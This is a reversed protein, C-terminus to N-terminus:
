CSHDWKAIMKKKINRVVPHDSTDPKIALYLEERALVATCLTPYNSGQLENTSVNFLELFSVLKGLLVCEPASLKLNTKENKGIGDRCSCIHVTYTITM